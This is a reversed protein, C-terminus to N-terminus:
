VGMRQGEEPKEEGMEKGTKHSKNWCAHEVTTVVTSYSENGSAETRRLKACLVDQSMAMRVEVRKVRVVMPEM